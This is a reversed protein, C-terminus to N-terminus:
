SIHNFKLPLDEWAEDLNMKFAHINKSNVVNKPLKNWVEIIRFYFSNTQIGRVGDKPVRATLQYDHKRSPRTQLQFNNSLTNKDYDHIHKYTEIMDGRSRRYALTTLNLKQLREQYSFNYFGDVLKTARRQVNEIINRHKKLHPSWVAQNYELHPRVFSTFLTKFLEGDLYSFSRRIIGVLSNAKKVKDAIHEEFKLESDIIVGLDKEEFVHELEHDNLSYRNAYIINELKGITLVHCKDPHFRLLWRNSWLELAKIDSQLSKADERSKITKIIKTDDAFMYSEAHVVDPLDNIYIIFLIPGLVSGQPIGSLVSAPHSKCGNVKVIQTRDELFSKIWQLINGSIGYSRLKGILRRHPVTDFAKAFDFYIADVADGKVTKEICKDLYNLLQTVTSRGKIFGYQKNSLLNEKSMHSMLKEKVFSEMIKCVISTLSIPRYNSAKNKSGKKFIASVHAIKWDKPLHNTKFSKNLIITIPEAIHHVLEKLLSPHIEDPGCAKSTDLGLIKKIVMETTIQIDSICTETRKDLIPTEHDPEETFVSVFQKQLINAKEDDSFKLSANNLNNELLPAIGTKTKLKSRVHSWFIKPNNKSKRGIDKEFSRKAKRIMRKVKNRAKTYELRLRESVTQHKSTIWKRHLRTKERIADQTAQDIPVNGKSKWSQNGTTKPIFKNRLDLIEHKFSEWLQDVTKNNSESVFDEEWNSNLLSDRMLDFNGKSFNYRTTPKSYDIYCEYTFTIVCHDSKDLPAHYRIESVQMEEDTLVLDIISPLDTGRSRTPEKVHQHLYCDRLTELFLAEKSLENHNTTERSWNIDKFNFDGVFCKHSINKKVCLKILVENLRLNNEASTATITPSRYFCGFLLRDNGRLQIELLCAEKFHLNEEIQIVSNDLSKHTYVAIGRGTKTQLNVQHLTYGAISYDRDTRESNNKPKMECVAVILPKKRGILEILESKKSTTLQDANTYM